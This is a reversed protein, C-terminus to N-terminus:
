KGDAPRCPVSDTYTYTEGNDFNGVAKYPWRRSKPCGTTAIWKGRGITGKASRAAIPVGAVVQLNEPVQLSVKYGWKPHNLKKIHVPIAEQVLAPFYLTVYALALKAGGNYVDIDPRTIVTDAYATADIHGM